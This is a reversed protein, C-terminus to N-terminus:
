NGISLRGPTIIIVVRLQAPPLPSQYEAAWHVVDSLALPAGRGPSIATMLLPVTSTLPESSDEIPKGSLATCTVSPEVLESFGATMAAVPAVNPWAKLM